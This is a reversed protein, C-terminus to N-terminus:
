PIKLPLDEPHTTQAAALDKGGFDGVLLLVPQEYQKAM